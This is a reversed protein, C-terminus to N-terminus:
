DLRSFNQINSGNFPGRILSLVELFLKCSNPRVQLDLCVLEIEELLCDRRLELSDFELSMSDTHAPAAVAGISSVM